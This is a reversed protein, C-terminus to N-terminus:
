PYEEYDEEYYGESGDGLDYEMLYEAADSVCTVLNVKENELRWAIMSGDEGLYYYENEGSGFFTYSGIIKKEAEQLSMGVKVGAVSFRKDKAIVMDIEGNFDNDIIGISDNKAMIDEEIEMLFVNKVIKLDKGLLWKADLPLWFRLFLLEAAALIAIWIGKKWRNKQVSTTEEKMWELETCGCFDCCECDEEFEKGCKMCIKKM